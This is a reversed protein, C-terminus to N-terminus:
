SNTLPNKTEISNRVVSTEDRVVRFLRMCSAKVSFFQEPNKKSAEIARPEIRKIWRAFLIASSLGASATYGTAVGYIGMETKLGLVGATIIGSVICACSIISSRQADGLVRLEQLLLFRSADLICGMFMIPALYRLTKIFYQNDNQNLMDVLIDPYVSLTILVPAIYVLLAGIGVKGIRSANNFRNAGIERSLEQAATQGFAIQLLLSFLSFQMIASFVAQPQVGIVGAFGSTMFNMTTESTMSILMSRSLNRANNLQDLYPHWPKCFNFFNFEKLRPSKALYLAFGGATLYADLICGILIGTTGMKPAGLKGFALVGGLSMSFVFNSLGIIMAPKTRKFTFMVQDACIRVMMAPIAISYPRLFSQTIEAVHTNQNFVNVLLAKSFVMGAVMFPTMAASMILGNGFIASVHERRLQLQGETETGEAEQLEGLEKGAVLSMTLLPSAGICVISNILTTILTIAALNDESDDLQSLLYVM